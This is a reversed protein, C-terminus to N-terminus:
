LTPFRVYQPQIDTFERRQVVGQEVLQELISRCRRRSIGLKDSLSEVSESVGSPSDVFDRIRSEELPLEQDIEIPRIWALNLGRTAALWHTL